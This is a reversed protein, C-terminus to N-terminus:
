SVLAGHTGRKHYKKFTTWSLANAYKYMTASPPAVILVRISSSPHHRLISEVSRYNALTFSEHGRSWDM